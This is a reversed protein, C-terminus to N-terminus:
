FKLAQIPGPVQLIKEFFDVNKNPVYSVDFRDMIEEPDRIHLQFFEVVRLERTIAWVRYNPKTQSSFFILMTKPVYSIDFRELIEEPDRIHLGFFKVVRLERSIAM